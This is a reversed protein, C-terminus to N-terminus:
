KLLYKSSGQNSVPPDGQWWSHQQRGDQRDHQVRERQEQDDHQVREAGALQEAGDDHPLVGHEASALQLPVSVLLM